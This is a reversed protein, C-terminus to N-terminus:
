EEKVLPTAPERVQDSTIPEPEPPIRLEKAGRPSPEDTASPKPEGDATPEPQREASHPSTPSPVPDPTPSTDDDVFDVTVSSKCSVLVWEIYAALS